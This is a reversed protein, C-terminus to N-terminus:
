KASVAPHRFVHQQPRRGCKDLPLVKENVGNYNSFRNSMEIGRKQIEKAPFAGLVEPGNACAPYANVWYTDVHTKKNTQYTQSLAPHPVRWIPGGEYCGCLGGQCTWFSSIKSTGSNMTSFTSHNIIDGLLILVQANLIFILHILVQYPGSWFRWRYPLKPFGLKYDYTHKTLTFHHPLIPRRIFTIHLPILSNYCLLDM